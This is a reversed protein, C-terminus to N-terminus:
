KEKTNPPRFAIHNVRKCFSSVPEDSMEVDESM